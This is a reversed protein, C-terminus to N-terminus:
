DLLNQYRTILQNVRKKLTPLPNETQVFKKLAKLFQCWIKKSEPTTTKLFKQFQTHLLSLTKKADQNSLPTYLQFSGLFVLLTKRNKNTISGFYCKESVQKSCLGVASLNSM